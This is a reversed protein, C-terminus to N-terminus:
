KEVDTYEKVCKFLMDRSEEDGYMCNDWFWKSFNQFVRRAKPHTIVAQLYTKKPTSQSDTIYIGINDINCCETNIIDYEGKFFRGKYQIGKGSYEFIKLTEIREDFNLPRFENIYGSTIGTSLFKKVYNESLYYYQPINVTKRLEDHKKEVGLMSQIYPHELPFGFYNADEFLRYIIEFPIESLCLMGHIAYTTNLDCVCAYELMQEYDAIKVSNQKLEKGCMALKKKHIYEAMDKSIRSTYLTNNDYVAIECNKDDEAVALVTDDSQGLNEFLRHNKNPFFTIIAFLQMAIKEETTNFGVTHMLKIAPYEELLKNLMVCHNEQLMGAYITINKQSNEKIFKIFSNFKSSEESKEKLYLRSLIYNAKRESYSIKCENMLSYLKRKEDQTIELVSLIKGTLESTKEYSYKNQFLRYIENKSKINLRDTLEAVSINKKNLLSHFYDGFNMFM